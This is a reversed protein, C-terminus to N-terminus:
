NFSITRVRLEEGGSIDLWHSGCNPCPDHRKQIPFRTQCDACLAEAPVRQITCNAHQLVTGDVAATWLFELTDIEVGALEGIQLVIADLKAPPPQRAATEEAIEIINQIISLEHM